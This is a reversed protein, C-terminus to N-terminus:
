TNIYSYHISKILCVCKSATYYSTRAVSMMNRSNLVRSSIKQTSNRIIKNRSVSLDDMSKIVETWGGGRGGGWGLNLFIPIDSLLWMDSKVKGMDCRKHSISINIRPVHQVVKTKMDVSLLSYKYNHWMDSSNHSISINIRPVHHGVKTKQAISFHCQKHSFIGIIKKVEEGEGTLRGIM